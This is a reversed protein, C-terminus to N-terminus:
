VKKQLNSFIVIALLFVAFVYYMWPEIIFKSAVYDENPRRCMTNNTDSCNKMIELAFTIFKVNAVGMEKSSTPSHHANRVAGEYEINATTIAEVLEDSYWSYIHLYDIRSDFRGIRSSALITSVLIQFLM